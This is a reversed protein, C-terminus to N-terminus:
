PQVRQTRRAPARALEPCPASRSGHLLPPDGLVLDTYFTLNLALGGLAAVRTLLGALMALGIWLEGLAIVAGFVTAHPIALNALLWSLPM